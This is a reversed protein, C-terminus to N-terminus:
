PLTRVLPESKNRHACQACHPRVHDTGARRKALPIERGIPCTDNTHWVDRIPNNQWLTYFPPVRM